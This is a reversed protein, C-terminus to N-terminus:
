SEDNCEPEYIRDEPGIASAMGLRDRVIAWDYGVAEVRGNTIADSERHFILVPLGLKLDKFGLRKSEEPWEGETWMNIRVKEDRLKNLAGTVAGGVWERPVTPTSLNLKHDSLLNYIEAAIAQKGGDDTGRVIVDIKKIM